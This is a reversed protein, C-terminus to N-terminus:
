QVKERQVSTTRVIKNSRNEAAWRGHFAGYFAGTYYDKIIWVYTDSCVEKVERYEVVEKTVPEVLVGVGSELGIDTLPSFYYTYRVYSLEGDRHHVEAVLDIETGDYFAAPLGVAQVWFSTAILSNGTSAMEYITYPLSGKWTGATMAAEKLEKEFKEVTFM